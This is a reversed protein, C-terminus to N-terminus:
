RSQKDKGLSAELIKLRLDQGGREHVETYFGKEERHELDERMRDRGVLRPVEKKM